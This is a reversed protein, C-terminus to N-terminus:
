EEDDLYSRFEKIIKKSIEIGRRYKFELPIANNTLFANNMEKNYFVSVDRLNSISYHKMIKNINDTDIESPPDFFRIKGYKKYIIFCHGSFHRLKKYSVCIISANGNKISGYIKKLKNKRKECKLDKDTYDKYNNSIKTKFAVSLYKAMEGSTLGHSKKEVMIKSDKESVLPDRLGLVTFTQLVCNNASIAYLKSHDVKKYPVQFLLNRSLNIKSKVKTEKTEKTQAKTMLITYQWDKNLIKYLYSIRYLLEFAIGYTIYSILHAKFLGDIKVNLEIYGCFVILFHHLLNLYSIQNLM